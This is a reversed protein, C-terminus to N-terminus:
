EGDAAEAEDGQGEPLRGPLDDRVGLEVEGSVRAPEQLARQV